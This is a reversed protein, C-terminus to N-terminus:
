NQSSKLTEWNKFMSLKIMFILFFFRPLGARGANGGGVELFKLSLSFPLFLSIEKNEADRRKHSSKLFIVM